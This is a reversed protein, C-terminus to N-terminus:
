NIIFVRNLHEGKHAEHKCKPRDEPRASMSLLECGLVGPEM